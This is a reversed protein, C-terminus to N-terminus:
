VVTSIKAKFDNVFNLMFRDTVVKINRKEQNEEIVRDRFSQRNIENFWEDSTSDIYLSQANQHNIKDNSSTRFSKEFRGVLKPTKNLLIYDNYRSLIETEITDEDIPWEFHTIGNLIYYTWWLNVNGYMQHALQDPRTGPQIYYDEVFTLNYWENPFNSVRKTIDEIDYNKGAIKVTRVGFDSFFAM